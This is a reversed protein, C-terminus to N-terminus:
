KKSTQRKRGPKHKVAEALEESNDQKLQAKAEALYALNDADAPSQQVAQAFAWKAMKWEGLDGLAQGIMRRRRSIASVSQVQNLVAILKDAKSRYAKDVRSAKELYGVAKEPSQVSLFLGLQYNLDARDPQREVWKSLTLLAGEYNEFRYQAQYLADFVELPALPFDVLTEWIALAKVAEGDALYAEGMIYQSFLSMQHGVAAQEFAQLAKVTDGARFANVGIEELLEGRWPEFQYARELAQVVVVPRHSLRALNASRLPAAIVECVPSLSLLIVILLPLLSRVFLFLSQGDM